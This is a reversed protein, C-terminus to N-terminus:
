HRERGLQSSCPEINKIEYVIGGFDVYKQYYRNKRLFNRGKRTNNLFLVLTSEFKEDFFSVNYCREVWSYVSWTKNIEESQIQTLDFTYVIESDLFCNGYLGVNFPSALRFSRISVKEKERTTLYILDIHMFRNNQTVVSDVQGALIIQNQSQLAENLAFYAISILIIHRM